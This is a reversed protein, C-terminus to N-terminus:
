NTWWGVTRRATPHSRARRRPATVCACRRGRTLRRWLREIRRVSVRVALLVAPMPVEGREGEELVVLLPWIARRLRRPIPPLPRSLDPSTSPSPDHVTTM